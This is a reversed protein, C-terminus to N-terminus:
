PKRVHFTFFGAARAALVNELLDDYFAVAQIKKLVEVKLAPNHDVRHIRTFPVDLAKLMQAYAEDNDLPLGPSIASVIHVEHGEAFLRRALMRIDENHPQDLTNFFDFAYVRM